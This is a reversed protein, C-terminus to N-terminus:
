NQIRKVNIAENEKQKKKKKKIKKFPPLLFLSIPLAYLQTPQSTPSSKPLTPTPFSPRVFQIFKYM